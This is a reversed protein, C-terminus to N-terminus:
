SEGGSMRRGIWYASSQGSRCGEASGRSSRAATPFSVKKLGSSILKGASGSHRAAM